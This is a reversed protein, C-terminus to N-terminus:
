PQSFFLLTQSLINKMCEEGVRLLQQRDNIKKFAKIADAFKGDKLCRSGLNALKADNEALVYMDVADSFMGINEYNEGIKALKDKNGIFMFAKVAQKVNGKRLCEDGVENLLQVRTEDDFMSLNVSEIGKDILAPVLKGFNQTPASRLTVRSSEVMKDVVKQAFSNEDAM